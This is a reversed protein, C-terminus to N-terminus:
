NVLQWKVTENIGLWDKSSNELIELLTNEISVFSSFKEVSLYDDEITINLEEELEIIVNIFQLSDLDLLAEDETYVVGRNEIVERIVTKIQEIDYM